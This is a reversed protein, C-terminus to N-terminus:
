PNELLAAAYVCLRAHFADTPVALDLELREELRALRSAVSSHHMHLAQGAMRLSGHTLYSELVELDVTGSPTASLERLFSVRWDAAWGEPSVDALAAIAGLRDADAFSPGSSPTRAFRLATRASDWSAAADLATVTRGIGCRFVVGGGDRPPGLASQVADVVEIHSHSPPTQIAIAGLAGLQAARAHAFAQVRRLLENLCESTMAATGRGSVALVVLDSDPPVGLRRLAVSREAVPESVSLVVELLSPDSLESAAVPFREHVAGKAALAFRELILEDLSRAPGKREIWAHVDGVDLELRSAATAAGKMRNGSADFRISTGDPLRLGATAESIAAAGRVVMEATASRMALADFYAIVRLAAETDSDMSSLKM